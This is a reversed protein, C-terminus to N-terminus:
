YPFKLNTESETMALSSILLSLAFLLLLLLPTKLLTPGSRSSSDSRKRHSDPMHSPTFVTREMELCSYAELHESLGKLHLCEPISFKVLHDTPQDLIFTM